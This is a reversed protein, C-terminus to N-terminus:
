LICIVTIKYTDGYSYYLKCNAYTSITSWTLLIYYECNNEIALYTQVANILCLICLFIRTYLCGLFSVVPKIYIHGLFFVKSSIGLPFNCVKM